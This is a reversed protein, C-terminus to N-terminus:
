HLKSSTAKTYHSRLCFKMLYISSAIQSNSSSISNDNPTNFLTKDKEQNKNKKIQNTEVQAIKSRSSESLSILQIFLAKFKGPQNSKM